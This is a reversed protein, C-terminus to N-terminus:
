NPCSFLSYYFITIWYFGWEEALVCFIFDTNQEPVHKYKDNSLTGKLFGKGFGEGSGIASLSQYINYGAGKRDEKVVLCLKFVLEIDKKSFLTM